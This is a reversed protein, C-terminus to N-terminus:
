SFSVAQGSLFHTLPPDRRARLIDIAAEFIQHGLFHARIKRPVHTGPDIVTMIENRNNGMWQDSSCYHIFVHNYKAWPNLSAQNRNLIGHGDIGVRPSTISSMTNMGFNTGEACWRDACSQPSDCVGGGKLQIVWRNRNEEGVYPRFYFIGPSGDNCMAGPYTRLDMDHRQLQDGPDLEGAGTRGCSLETFDIVPQCFAPLCPGLFLALVPLAPITLKPNM